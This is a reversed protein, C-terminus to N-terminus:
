CAPARITLGGVDISKLVRHLRSEFAHLRILPIASAALHQPLDNAIELNPLDYDKALGGIQALIVPLNRFRSDESLVMLFADVVRPSFGEGIVIGNFERSNLHKAAAEISLAGVVATQEGLAISLAPFSAGRGLLLVTADMLPDNDPLHVSASKEDALRRLVTAHLLRARLAANLRAAIRTPNGTTQSFPLINPPLPLKPDLAILPVLPELTEVQAALADLSQERGESSAVIIAAPLMRRVAETAGAWDTDVVPFVKADALAKAAPSNPRDSVILIPGQQSMVPHVRRM